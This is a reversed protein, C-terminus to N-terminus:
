CVLYQRSQLESTHEESRSYNAGIKLLIQAAATLLVTLFIQLFPNWFLGPAPKPLAATPLQDHMFIFLRRRHRAIVLYDSRRCNGLKSNRPSKSPASPWSPAAKRRCPATSSFSCM